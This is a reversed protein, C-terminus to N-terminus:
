GKGGEGVCFYGERGGKMGGEGAGAGSPAESMDAMLQEHPYLRTPHYLVKQWCQRSM